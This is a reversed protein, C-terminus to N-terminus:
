RACGKAMGMCDNPRQCMGVGNGVAPDCKFCPVALENQTEFSAASNMVAAKAEHDDDVVLLGRADQITQWTLCPQCKGCDGHDCSLRRPMVKWADILSIILTQHHNCAKAIFEAADKDGPVVAVSKGDAGYVVHSLGEPQSPRIAFPLIAKM